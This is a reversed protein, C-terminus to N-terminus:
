WDKMEEEIDRGQWVDKYRTWWGFWLRVAHKLDAEMSGRIVTNQFGPSFGFSKGTIPRLVHIIRNAKAIDDRDSYDLPVLGNLLAPIAPKAEATLKERAAISRERDDGILDRVLRELAKRKTASTEELFDVAELDGEPNLRKNYKEDLTKPKEDAVHDLDGGYEEGVTQDIMAWAGGIRHLSVTRNQRRDNLLNHLVLEVVAKKGDNSVEKAKEVAAERAFGAGQPSDDTLAGIYEQMKLIRDLEELDSWLAGGSRAKHFLPFNVMDQLRDTENDSVAAIFQVCFTEAETRVVRDPDEAQPPTEDPETREVRSVKDNNEAPAPGDRDINSEVIVILVVFLAAGVGVVPWLWPKKKEPKKGAKRAQAPFSQGCSRCKVKKGLTKLPVDYEARCKPCIILPM